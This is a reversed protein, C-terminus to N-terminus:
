GKGGGMRDELGRGNRRKRKAGTNGKWEDNREEKACEV